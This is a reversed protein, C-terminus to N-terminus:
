KKNIWKKECEKARTKWNRMFYENNSAKIEENRLQEKCEEKQSIWDIEESAGATVIEGLLMELCKACKEDIYEREEHLMRLRETEERKQTENTINNNNQTVEM